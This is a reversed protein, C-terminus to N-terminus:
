THVACSGCHARAIMGAPAVWGYAHVVCCGQGTPMDVVELDCMRIETCPQAFCSNSYVNVIAQAAASIVGGSQPVLRYLHHVLAVM